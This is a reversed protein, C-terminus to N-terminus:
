TCSGPAFRESTSVKSYTAASCRAIHHVCGQRRSLGNNCSMNMATSFDQTHCCFGHLASDQTAMSRWALQGSGDHLPHQRVKEPANFSIEEVIRELVTHLRRAGINDISSNVEAAVRSIEHIADDSFNLDVGETTLLAQQQKIM